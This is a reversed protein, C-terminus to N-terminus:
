KGYAACLRKVMKALDNAEARSLNAKEGKGFVAILFVPQRSRLLRQCSELRREQRNRGQRVPVQACRGLRESHRRADPEPGGADRTRGAARFFFAARGSAFRGEIGVPDVEPSCLFM